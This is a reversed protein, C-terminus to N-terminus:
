QLFSLHQTLLLFMLLLCKLKSTIKEKNLVNSSFYDKQSLSHRYLILYSLFYKNLFVVIFINLRVLIKDNVEPFSCCLLNFSTMLSLITTLQDNVNNRKMKSIFM